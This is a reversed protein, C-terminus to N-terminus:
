PEPAEQAASPAPQEARSAVAAVTGPAPRVVGMPMGLAGKVADLAAQAQPTAGWEEGPGDDDDAVVVEKSWWSRLLAEANAPARVGGTLWRVAM